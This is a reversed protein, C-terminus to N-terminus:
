GRRPGRHFLYKEYKKVLKRCEVLKKLDSAEYRRRVEREVSKRSPFSRKSKARAMSWVGRPVVIALYGAM